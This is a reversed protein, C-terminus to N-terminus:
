QDNLYLDPVDGDTWQILRHANSQLSANRSNEINHKQIEFGSSTQNADEVRGGSIHLEVIQSNAWLVLGVDNSKNALEYAANLVDTDKSYLLKSLLLFAMSQLRSMDEERSASISEMLYNRCETFRMHLYFHLAHVFYAAAKLSSAQSRLRQPSINDFIEYFETERSTFLYILALSLNLITWLGVDNTKVIASKFQKEAESPLRMYFAYFGLLTHIQANFDILLFPSGSVRKAMNVIQTMSVMPNAQILQTQAVSEYLLLEMRDVFEEHQPKITVLDNKKMLLRLGEFHKLATAYYRHAREFNSYQVNCLVTLVYALGTLIESGLWRFHVGDPFNTTSNPIPQIPLDQETTQVTMHLQRLCQKSSKVMGTSLFYCLQITYCFARIDNIAPDDNAVTQLIEGLESVSRGLEQQDTMQISLILSKALRFYCEILTGKIQRFYNIGTQVIELASYYEGIRLYVESYLFLLKAYLHPFMRSETLVSRINSIVQQYDRQSMLIDTILCITKTRAQELHEGLQCMFKHANRLHFLALHANRTYLWLLKGLEYSCLATLQASCPVRLATMVCKIALKYNPNKSSRFTEAMAMLSFLAQDVNVGHPPQVRVPLDVDFEM